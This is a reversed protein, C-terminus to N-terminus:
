RRAAGPPRIEMERFVKNQARSVGANVGADYGGSFLAKGNEDCAPIGMGKTHVQQRVM